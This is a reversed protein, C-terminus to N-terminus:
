VRGTMRGKLVRNEVEVGSENQPASLGQLYRNLKLLVLLM